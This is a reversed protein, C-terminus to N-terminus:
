PAAMVVQRVAHGHVLPMELVQGGAAARALALIFSISAVQRQGASINALFPKGWPDLVQLSYDDEVVIKRLM